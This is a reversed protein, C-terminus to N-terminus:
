SKADNLTEACPTAYMSTTFADTDDPSIGENDVERAIAREINRAITFVQAKTFQKPGNKFSVEVEFKLTKM